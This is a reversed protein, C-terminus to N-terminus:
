LTPSNSGQNGFSHFVQFVINRDHAQLLFPRLHQRGTQAGLRDAALVAQLDLWVGRDVGQIGVLKKGQDHGAAPSGVLQAPV